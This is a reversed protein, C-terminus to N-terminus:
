GQEAREMRRAKTNKSCGLLTGDDIVRPDEEVAPRGEELARARRQLEWPGAHSLFEVSSPAAGAPKGGAIRNSSAPM